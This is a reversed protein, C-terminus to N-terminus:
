YIVLEPLEPEIRYYLYVHIGIRPSSPQTDEPNHISPPPSANQLQDENVQNQNQGLDQLPIQNANSNLSPDIDQQTGPEPHIQSPLSTFQKKVYSYMKKNSYIAFIISLLFLVDFALMQLMRVLAFLEVFLLSICVITEILFILCLLSIVKPDYQEKDNEISNLSLPYKWRTYAIRVQVFGVVLASIISIVLVAFGKRVQYTDDLQQEKLYLFELSNEFDTLWNCVLALTCVFARSMMKIREDDISNILEFHFVMQYKVIAFVGPQALVCIRVFLLIRAITMAAYYNYQPVVKIWMIWTVLLATGLIIIGDKILNDLVTQMGLSKSSLYTWVQYM